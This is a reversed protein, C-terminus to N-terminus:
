LSREGHQNRQPILRSIRRICGIIQHEGPNFDSCHWLAGRICATLWCDSTPYGIPQRLAARQKSRDSRFDQRFAIHKQEVRAVAIGGLNPREDGARETESLAKM